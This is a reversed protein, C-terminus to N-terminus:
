DYLEQQYTLWKQRAESLKESFFTITKRKQSLVAEIGIGNADCEIEFTRAFDPLSLALTTTLNEKILEFSHDVVEGWQFRGKKLCDIIPVAITSFKKIFGRYFTTLGHFGRVNTISELKLWERIANVKEKDMHIGDSSILFRLFVLKSTLFVCKKLNVFLKNRRLVILVKRNHDLHEEVNKSYILIDDFYVVVFHSMFPKLVHTILRMFIIPANSLGFPM